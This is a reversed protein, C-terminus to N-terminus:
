FGVFRFLGWVAIPGSPVFLLLALLRGHPPLMSIVKRSIRAGGIALLSASSFGIPMVHLPEHLGLSAAVFMGGIFGLIGWAISISFIGINMVAGVRYTQAFRLSAWRIQRSFHTDSREV